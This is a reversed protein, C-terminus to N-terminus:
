IGNERRGLKQNPTNGNIIIPIPVVEIQSFFYGPVLLTIKMEGPRV